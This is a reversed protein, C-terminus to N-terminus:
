RQHRYPRCRCGDKRGKGAAGLGITMGIQALLGEAEAYMSSIMGVAFEGHDEAAGAFQRASDRMSAKLNQVQRQAIRSQIQAAAWNELKARLTSIQAQLAGHQQKTEQEATKAELARLQPGFMLDVGVEAAKSAVSGGPLEAWDFGKEIVFGIAKKIAGTVSLIDSGEVAGKDRAVVGSDIDNLATTVEYHAAVAKYQQASAEGVYRELESHDTQMASWHPAGGGATSVKMANRRIEQEGGWAEILNGQLGPNQKEVLALQSSFRSVDLRVGQYSRQFDSLTRGQEGASVLFDGLVETAHLNQALAESEILGHKIGDLLHDRYGDIQDIARKAAGREGSNGIKFILPTAREANEKATLKRAEQEGANAADLFEDSPMAGSSQIALAEAAVPKPREAHHHSM